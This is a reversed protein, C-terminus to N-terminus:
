LPSSIGIPPVCNELPGGEGGLFFSGTPQEGKGVGTKVVVVLVEELIITIIVACPSIVHQRVEDIGDEDVRRSM